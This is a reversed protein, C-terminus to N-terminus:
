EVLIQRTITNERSYKKKAKIVINNLGKKLNVTQSFIGAHNNLVLSDNIRVEAEPDTRGSVIISDEKILLSEAPQINKLEPPFIVRKFYFILYLLCVLIALAILFNRVIRPFILFRSKHVVKQSFPNKESELFVQKQAATMIEEPKLGLCAAYEKFFNKGYLGAPLKDFREEELAILYEQRINLKKSIDELRWNKLSRAQRLKEGFGETPTITKPIFSTM